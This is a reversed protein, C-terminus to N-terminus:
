TWPSESFCLADTIPCPGGHREMTVDRMYSPQPLQGVVLETVNPQPQGGFFVIALALHGQERVAHYPSSHDLDGPERRRSKLLLLPPPCWCGPAARQRLDDPRHGPLWQHEVTVDRMYSPQPLLGVVLETVNSQPQGGFFIIALAERAPPPSGKDLHALAAAKPSLQLEVSFICNDSPRAQAADVLGPGLNQTLFRLQSQGPHTWPQASPSRSPCCPLLSPLYQKGVGEESGTGGEERSMVLLTWLSLFIFIFM